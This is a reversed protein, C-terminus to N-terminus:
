TSSIPVMRVLIVGLLNQRGGFPSLSSWTRTQLSQLSKSGIRALGLSGM